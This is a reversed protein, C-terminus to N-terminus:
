YPRQRGLLRRNIQTATLSDQNHYCWVPSGIGVYDPVRELGPTFECVSDLVPDFHKGLFFVTSPVYSTMAKRRYARREKLDEFALTQPHFPTPHWNEAFVETCFDWHVVLLDVPEGLAYLQLLNLQHMSHQSTELSYIPLYLYEAHVLRDVAQKRVTWNHGEAVVLWLALVATLTATSKSPFRSVLAVGLALLM